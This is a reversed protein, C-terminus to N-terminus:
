RIQKSFDSLLLTTSVLKEEEIWLGQDFKLVFNSGFCQRTKKIFRRVDGLARKKFSQAGQYFYLYLFYKSTKPDFGLCLIPGNEIRYHPTTYDYGLPCKELVYVDGPLSLWCKLPGSGFITAFNQTRNKGIIDEMQIRLTRNNLRNGATDNKAARWFLKFLSDEGWKGDYSKVFNTLPEHCDSEVIIKCNGALIQDIHLSQLSFRTRLEHVRGKSDTGTRSENRALVYSITTMATAAKLFTRRLM